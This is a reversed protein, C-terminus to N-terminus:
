QVEKAWSPSRKQIFAMLGETGEKSRACEAFDRAAVDLLEEHSVKGVQLLLKKTLVTARPACRLMTTLLERKAEKTDACLIDVLGEQHAQSATLKAGTLALRRSKALGLRYVLFPAIQAPIIGLSTEPLRFKATDDAIVVDAVCVLGFGGGM